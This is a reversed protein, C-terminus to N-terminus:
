ISQEFGTTLYITNSPFILATCSPSVNTFHTPKNIIQNYGATSIINELVIGAKNSKDTPCWISLKTNFDGLLVACSPQFKNINNHLFTLDSCFTELEDDNQSPSRYLCIKRQWSYNWCSYMESLCIIDLNHTTIFAAILTPSEGEM